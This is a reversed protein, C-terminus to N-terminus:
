GGLIDDVAPRRHRPQPEADEYIVEYWEPSYQEVGHRVPTEAPVDDPVTHYVGEPSYAPPPPIYRPPAPREDNRRDRQRRTVAAYVGIGVLAGTMAIFGVFVLLVILGIMADSM